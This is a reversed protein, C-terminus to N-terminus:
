KASRKGKQRSPKSELMGINKKLDIGHKAKAINVLEEYFRARITAEALAKQLEAIKEREDAMVVEVIQRRKVRGYLQMWSWLTGHNVGYARSAEAQSLKGAEVEKVIREKLAKSYRRDEGTRGM